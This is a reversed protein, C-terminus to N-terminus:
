VSELNQVFFDSIEINNFFHDEYSTSPFDLHPHIGIQCLVVGVVLFVAITSDGRQGGTFRCVRLSLRFVNVSRLGVHDTFQDEHDFLVRILQHLSRLGNLVLLMM